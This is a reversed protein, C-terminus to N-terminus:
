WLDLLALLSRAQLHGLLLIPSWFPRWRLSVWFNEPSAVLLLCSGCLLVSSFLGGFHYPRRGLVANLYTDVKEAEGHVALRLQEACLKHHSRTTGFGPM